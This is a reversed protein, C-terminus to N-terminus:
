NAIPSALSWGAVKLFKLKKIAFQEVASKQKIDNNRAWECAGQIVASYIKQPWDPPHLAPHLTIRRIVCEFILISGATQRNATNIACEWRESADYTTHLLWHTAQLRDHHAATMLPSQSVVGSSPPWCNSNLLWSFISVPDLYYEAMKCWSTLPFDHVTSSLDIGRLRMREALEQNAFQCIHIRDTYMLNLVSCLDRDLAPAREIKNWCATFLEPQMVSMQVITETPNHAFLASPQILQEPTMRVILEGALDLKGAHFAIHFFSQGARNFYSAEISRLSLLWLFCEPCTQILESATDLASLHSPMPIKDKSDLAHRFDTYLNWERALIKSSFEFFKRIELRGEHSVKKSSQLTRLTHLAIHSQTSDEVLLRGYLQSIINYDLSDAPELADNLVSLIFQDVIDEANQQTTAHIRDTPQPGIGDFSIIREFPQLNEASMKPPM